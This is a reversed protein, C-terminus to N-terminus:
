SKWKIRIFAEVEYVVYLEHTLYAKISLGSESKILFDSFMLSLSKLLVFLSLLM